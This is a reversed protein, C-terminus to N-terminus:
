KVESSCEKEKEEGQQSSLVKETHDMENLCKRDLIMRDSM